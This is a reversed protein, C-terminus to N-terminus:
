PKGKVVCVHSCSCVASAFWTAAMVQVDTSCYKKWLGM